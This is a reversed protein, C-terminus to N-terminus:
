QFAKFKQEATIESIAKELTNLEYNKMPCKKRSDWKRLFRVRYIMDKLTLEKINYSCM